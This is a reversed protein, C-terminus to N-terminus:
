ACGAFGVPAIRDARDARGAAGVLFHEEHLFEHAHAEAVVVDVGAGADAVRRGAEAQRAGEACRGARLIEPRDVLGVHDDDDAGIRGVRVGDEGRAELLPQACSRPEDDDIRPLDVEHLARMDLGVIMQRQLGAGIDRHQVREGMHDDGFAQDVLGEHALAAIERIEFGPRAEDGVLAMRRFGDRRRGADIRLLKALRRTKVGGASVARDVVAEADGFM